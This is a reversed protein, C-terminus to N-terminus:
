TPNRTRYWQLEAKVSRLEEELRLKATSSEEAKNGNWRARADSEAKEQNKIQLMTETRELKGRVEELEDALGGKEAGSKQLKKKTQELKSSMTELTHLTNEKWREADGPTQWSGKSNASATQLQSQLDRQSQKLEDNAEKLEHVVNKAVLRLVETIHMDWRLVDDDSPNRDMRPSSLETFIEDYLERFRRARRADRLRRVHANAPSEVPLSPAEQIPDEPVASPEAAEDKGTDTRKSARKTPVKAQTADSPPSASAKRKELKPPAAPVRFVTSTGAMQRSPTRSPLQSSGPLSATTNVAVRSSQPTLSDPHVTFAVSQYQPIRSRTYLSGGAPILLGTQPFFGFPSYSLAGEVPPPSMGQYPPETNTVSQSRDQNQNDPLIDGQAPTADASAVAPPPATPPAVDDVSLRFVSSADPSQQPYSSWSDATAYYPTQSRTNDSYGPTPMVAVQSSGRWAPFNVVAPSPPPPQHYSSPPQLATGAPQFPVQRDSALNGHYLGRTGDVGPIAPIPRPLSSTRVLGPADSSTSSPAIFASATDWLAGSTSSSSTDSVKQTPPSFTPTAHVPSTISPAAHAKSALRLSVMSSASSSPRSRSASCLPRRLSPPRSSPVMATSAGTPVRQAPGERPQEEPLPMDAGDNNFFQLYADNLAPDYSLGSRSVSLQRANQPVSQNSLANEGVFSGATGQPHSPLAPTNPTVSFTPPGPYQQYGRQPVSYRTEGRPLQLYDPQRITYPGMSPPPDQPWSQPASHASAPDPQDNHDSPTQMTYSVQLGPGQSFVGRPRDWAVPACTGHAHSTGLLKLLDVAASLAYEQYTRTSMSRNSVTRLAVYSSYIRAGHAPMDSNPSTAYLQHTAKSQADVTRLSLAPPDSAQNHAYVSSTSSELKIHQDWARMITPRNKVYVGRLDASSFFLTSYISSSPSLAYLECFGRRAIDEPIDRPIRRQFMRRTVITADSIHAGPPLGVPTFPSSGLETVTTQLIGVFLIYNHFRLYVGIFKAFSLLYTLTHALAEQTRTNLLSNRFLQMVGHLQLKQWLGQLMSVPRRAPSFARQGNQSEGCDFNLFHNLTCAHVVVTARRGEDCLAMFEMNHM